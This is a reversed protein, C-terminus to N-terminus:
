STGNKEAVQNKASILYLRSTASSAVPREVSAHSLPTRSAFLSGCLKYCPKHCQCDLDDLTKFSRTVGEFPM